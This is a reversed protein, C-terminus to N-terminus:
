HPPEVPMEMRGHVKGAVCKVVRIGQALVVKDFTRKLTKSEFNVMPPKDPYEIEDGVDLELQPLGVWTKEGQDNAVEVYSYGVSNLLQTVKGFKGSGAKQPMAGQALQPNVTGVEGAQPLQNHPSNIHDRLEGHPGAAPPPPPPTKDKCAAALFM